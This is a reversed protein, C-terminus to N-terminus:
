HARCYILQACRMQTNPQCDGDLFNALGVMRRLDHDAKSAATALKERAASAIDYIQDLGTDFAPQSM